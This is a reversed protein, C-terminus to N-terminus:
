IMPLLQQLKSEALDSNRLELQEIEQIKTRLRVMKTRASPNTEGCTNLFKAAYFFYDKLNNCRIFGLRAVYQDILHSSISKGNRVNWYKLLRIVPKLLYMNYSNAKNLENKLEDPRTNVWDVITSHPAPIQYYPSIKSWLKVAPSIEFKINNMDLVMTPYDQYRDSRKYYTDAFDRLRALYSDPKLRNTDFVIMYDIDADADICKPLHTDRDFSGFCYHEIVDDSFSWNGIHTNLASISTVISSEAYTNEEIIRSNLARLHSLCSM